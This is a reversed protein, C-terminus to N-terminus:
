SSIISALYDHLYNYQYLVIAMTYFWTVKLYGEKYLCLVNLPFWVALASVSNSCTFTDMCVHIHMSKYNLTLKIVCVVVNGACVCYVILIIVNCTFGNTLVKVNLSCLM